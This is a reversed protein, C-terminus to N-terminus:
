RRDMPGSMPQDRGLELIVAGAAAAGAGLLVLLTGFGAANFGLRDLAIGFAIFVVCLTALRLHPVAPVSASLFVTAAIGLTLLLMIVSVASGAGRFAFMDALFGIAAVFSGGGILWGSMTVPWTIPLDIQTGSPPPAGASPYGAAPPAASPPPQHQPPPQHAEPQPAAEARARAPEVAPPAAASEDDPPEPDPAETAEPEPARTPEPWAPAAPIAATQDASGG